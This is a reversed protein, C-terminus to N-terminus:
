PKAIRGADFAAKGAKATQVWYEIQKLRRADSPHDSLMEPIHIGRREAGMMERWFQIAQDPDYGAFTMLFIGIHDAESEQERSFALSLLGHGMTRERAFRESLHHALAHAVEHSIVTALEGDDRVFELLGSLVVIKGGPLCFANVQQDEIVVYEWEFEGSSVHLNIERQLPGIQVASAIRRSVRSVQEVMPGESITKSKGRIEQFAERGIELEQSPKLALVQERHGPGTGAPETSCGAIMLFLVIWPLLIMKHNECCPFGRTKKAKSRQGSFSIIFCDQAASMSSLDELVIRKVRNTTM